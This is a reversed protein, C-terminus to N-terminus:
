WKKVYVCKVTSGCELFLNLYLSILKQKMHRITPGCAKVHLGLMENHVYLKFHWTKLRGISARKLM